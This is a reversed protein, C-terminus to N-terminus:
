YLWDNYGLTELDFSHLSKKMEFIQDKAYNVKILKVLNYKCNDEMELGLFIKKISEKPIPILRNPYFKTVSPFVIRWEKEYSWDNSKIRLISTGFKDIKNQDNNFVVKLSPYEKKYIVKNCWIKDNVHKLMENTDFEVCIGKHCNSYHSWMLLNLHKETMCQVGCDELLSNRYREYNKILNDKLETDNLAANIRKRKNEVSLGPYNINIENELIELLEDNSYNTDINLRCDFPDNFTLPCPFYLLNKCFLDEFYKLNSINFYKYLPSRISNKIM